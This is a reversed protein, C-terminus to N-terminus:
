RHDQVTDRELAFHESHAALAATDSHTEALRQNEDQLRNHTHM